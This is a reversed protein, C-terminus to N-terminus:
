QSGTGSRNKAIVDDHSLSEGHEFFYAILSERQESAKEKDAQALAKRLADRSLETCYAPTGPQQRWSEALNGADVPDFGADDVLKMALAKGREDDGAVPLAIRDASGSPKGRAAQTYALAANFAKIVPRGIKESVWVSEPKGAQLEEISGDRFPYYNSTDIITVEPSVGAILDALEPMAVTPISVVLADVGKAVDELEVPTAGTEAVKDRIADLGQADAVVVEHGAGTLNRAVSSGINGAGIIGIKM